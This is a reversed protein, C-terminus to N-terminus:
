KRFYIDVYDTAEDCPNTMEQLRWYKRKGTVAFTMEGSRTCPEGGNIHSIQMIITGDFKFEKKDVSTITGDIKVFDSGGQQKQEGKLHLVGAKHTITATGFYDWSIWQLSLLHKGLLMKKADADNVVTKEQAFVLSSFGALVVLSAYIIKKLM